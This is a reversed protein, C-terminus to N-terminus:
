CLLVCQKSQRGAAPRPGGEACKPGNKGALVADTGSVPVSAGM